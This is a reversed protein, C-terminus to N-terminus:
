FPSKKEAQTAIEYQNIENMADDDGEWQCQMRINSEIM